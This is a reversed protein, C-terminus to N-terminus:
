MEDLMRQYKMREQETPANRMMDELEMRFDNEARSYGGDRAYRGMSDRKRGRMAYRSDNAMRTTGRYNGYSNYSENSYEGEESEIIKDINKIAHALTDIAQLNKMDVQEERSYEELEECLMDKLKYLKDM